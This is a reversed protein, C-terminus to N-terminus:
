GPRRLFLVEREESGPEHGRGPRGHHRGVGPDKLHIRRQRLPFGSGHREPLGRGQDSAREVVRDGPGSAPRRGGDIFFNESTYSNTSLGFMGYLSGNLNSREAQAYAGFWDITNTFDYNIRDGLKRQGQTGTWFDSSCGYRACDDYWSGGLLDRVERYHDVKATRWDVGVEGTIGGEFDKRLKSIVGFQDQNNM